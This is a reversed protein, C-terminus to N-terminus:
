NFIVEAVGLMDDGQQQITKNYAKEFVGGPRFFILLCVIVAAVLLIYEIIGQGQRGASEKKQKLRM